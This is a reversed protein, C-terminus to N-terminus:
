TVLRISFMGNCCLYFRKHRWGYSVLVKNLRAREVRRKNTNMELTSSPQIPQNSAVLNNGVYISAVVGARALADGGTLTREHEYM